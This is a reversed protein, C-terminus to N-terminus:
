LERYYITMGASAPIWLFLFGKFVVPNGNERSHCRFVMFPSGNKVEVM